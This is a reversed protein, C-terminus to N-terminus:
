EDSTQGLLTAVTKGHQFVTIDGDISIKLVVLASESLTKAAATRAFPCTLPKRSSDSLNGRRSTSM